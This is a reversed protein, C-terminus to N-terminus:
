LTGLERPEGSSGREGGIEEEPTDQLARQLFLKLTKRQHRYHRFSGVFFYIFPNACSNICCLFVILHIDCSEVFGFYGFFKYLLFFFGLPLGFILFFLVTLVIIVCLRTVPIRQSDCFIRVLLTLSSVCLVVFLVIPWSGTIYNLTHCQFSDFSDLLFGCAEWHLLTLLLSMAWLLACTVASTHRPRRCRYWIPCLVSLCREVSIASLISLGSLYGLRPLVNFVNPIYIFISYFSYLFLHLFNVFQFSLFLFDAVALNLIYVSFANRRMHFGLFWLVIANGAMGVLSFILSLYITAQFMINCYSSNTYISGNPAIITTEWTSTNSNKSLLDGSTSRQEMINVPPPLSTQALLIQTSLLQM